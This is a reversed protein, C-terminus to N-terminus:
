VLQGATNTVFTNSTTFGQNNFNTHLMGGAGVATVTASQTANCWSLPTTVSITASVVVPEAITIAPQQSTCKQMRTLVQQYDTYFGNADGTTNSGTGSLDFTFPAVGSTPTVTINSDGNCTANTFTTTLPAQQNTTVDVNTTVDCVAANSDTITFTYVTAVSVETHVQLARLQRV